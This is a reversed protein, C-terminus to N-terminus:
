VFHITKPLETIAWASRANMFIFLKCISTTFTLGYMGTGSKADFITRAKNRLTPPAHVLTYFKLPSNVHRRLLSRISLVVRYWISSNTLILALSLICIRVTKKWRQMQLRQFLMSQLIHNFSNLIFLYCYIKTETILWSSACFTQKIILKNWAEVHKSCMHEDDPPWFQMVCGRTPTIIGSATYHLKSRRIILVYARFM